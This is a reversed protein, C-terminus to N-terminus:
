NKKVCVCASYYDTLMMIRYAPAVDYGLKRISLQQYYCTGHKIESMHELYKEQKWIFRDFGNDSVEDSFLESSVFEDESKFSVQSGQM